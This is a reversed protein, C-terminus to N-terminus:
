RKKNEKNDDDENGDKDKASEDVIATGSSHVCRPKQYYFQVLRQRLMDRSGETDQGHKALHARLYETTGDLLAIGKGKAGADDVTPQKNEKNEDAMKAEDDTDDDDLLEIVEGKAHANAFKRETNDDKELLTIVQGSEEALDQREQLLMLPSKVGLEEVEEEEKEEDVATEKAALAKQRYLQKLCRRLDRKLLGTTSQGHRALEARLEAVKMTDINM